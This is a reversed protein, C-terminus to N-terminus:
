GVEVVPVDQWVLGADEDDDAYVAQQLIDFRTVARAEARSALFRVEGLFRPARDVKALAETSLDRETMVGGKKVYALKARELKQAFSDHIKRLLEEKPHNM